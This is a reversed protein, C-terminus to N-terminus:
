PKSFITYLNEKWFGKLNSKSIEQKKLLKVYMQKMEENYTYYPAKPNKDQIYHVRALGKEVLKANISNYFDDKTSLYLVAVVRKYKDVQIQQMYIRKNEILESTYQKAKQAYDNEYKQLKEKKFDKQTEPTDIGYLRIHYQKNSLDTAIITDGDIVKQVKITIYKHNNQKNHQYLFLGSASAPVVLVSLLIWIWKKIKKM